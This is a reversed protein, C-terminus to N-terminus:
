PQRATKAAEEVEQLAQLLVEPGTGKRCAGEGLTRRWKRAGPCAHYLGLMHRTIRNIPQGAAHLQQLHPLMAQAAEKRTQAPNPKGFIRQDAQHLLWPEHYAARGIMVGDLPGIWQQAQELTQIGGNLIIQLHPFQQKLSKVMEYRLPPVERNEKPSLGHLWAKRAHVIFVECGREALSGVFDVLQQYSDQDDVGIRHKITVPLDTADIMAALCDGVIKPSKMLCAGFMGSQVKDSPCGVNLNIEDYGWRQGIRACQALENPDSGGLQLAIPHEEASFGLHREQDGHLIAGTTVMESYLLTHRSIKRAFLRYHRDTWDLMPAISLRRDLMGGRGPTNNNEM